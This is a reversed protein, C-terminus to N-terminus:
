NQPNYPKPLPMWACVDIAFDMTMSRWYNNDWFALDIIGDTKCVIMDTDDEPLRETVPIWRNVTHQRSVLCLFHRHEHDHMQRTKSDSHPNENMSKEIAEMLAKRSILGEKM